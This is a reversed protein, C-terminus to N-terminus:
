ASETTAPQPMTGAVHTGHGDADLPDGNDIITNIGHVDDVYGNHDDDIANGAIEGPNTWVNDVLDEHRYDIGTDSLGLVVEDGGTYDNWVEAADIDPDSPDDATRPDHLGWQVGFNPDNPIREAYYYINPEAVEVLGSARLRGLVQKSDGADSLRILVLGAPKDYTKLVGARVNRLLAQRQPTTSAETFKVLFEGPVATAAKAPLKRVAHALQVAIHAHSGAMARHGFGEQNLHRAALWGGALLLAILAFYPAPRKRWKRTSSDDSDPEIPM